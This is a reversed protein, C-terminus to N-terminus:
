GLLSNFSRAMNRAPNRIVNPEMKATVSAGTIKATSTTPTGSRRIPPMM